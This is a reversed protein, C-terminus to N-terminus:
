AVLEPEREREVFYMDLDDINKASIKGRHVCVFKDKVIEYTTASINVKGPTCATELRSAINVTNGW